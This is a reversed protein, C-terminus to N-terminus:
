FGVALFGVTTAREGGGSFGRWCVPGMRTHPARLGLGLAVSPFILGLHSGLTLVTALMIMAVM